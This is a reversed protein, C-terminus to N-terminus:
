LRELTLGGDLVLVTGTAYPLEGRALVSVASGVDSPLGWRKELLIGGAILADYKGKVGETMDTEIIGPRVEYVDIGYEALRVAWLKTAMAIGAKSICYDGRNVSAVTASVSSINIISRRAPPQRIMWAAAAQTLFYPGRLNTAIIEDFSEEGAQLLDARVRPAIGANNVLVDLRGLEAEVTTLLHLRDDASAVDAAIYISNPIQELVPQVQEAPRRGSLALTYGAEALKLAIGLGIGRTGGTVLAVKAPM